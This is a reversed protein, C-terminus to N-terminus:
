STSNVHSNSNSDITEAANATQSETLHKVSLTVLDDCDVVQGAGLHQSVQQLVISSLTREAALDAFALM